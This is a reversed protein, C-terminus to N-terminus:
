FHSYSLRKLVIVRGHADLFRPPGEGATIRGIGTVPVGAQQAVQLFAAWRNEPIACLVEYDDGGSVITEMEAPAAGLVARAPDSLPVAAMDVEASVGSAACFKALDGALGDSVDMAASAHDRVAVALANRPQPVRYRGILSKGRRRTSGTM